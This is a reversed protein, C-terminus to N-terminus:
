TMLFRRAAARPIGAREAVQSLTMSRHASDFTGLVDLGRALTQIFAARDAGAPESDPDNTADGDANGASTMTAPAYRRHRARGSTGSTRSADPARDYGSM